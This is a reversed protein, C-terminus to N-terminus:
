GSYRPTCCFGGEFFGLIGRSITGTGQPCGELSGNGPDSHPVGGVAQCQEPSLLLPACCSGGGEVHPPLANMTCDGRVVRGGAEACMAPTIPDFPPPDDSGCGVLWPGAWLLFM